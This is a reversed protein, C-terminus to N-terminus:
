TDLLNISRLNTNFLPCCPEVVTKWQMYSPLFSEVGFYFIPFFFVGLDGLLKIYWRRNFDVNHVTDEVWQPHRQLTHVQALWPSLSCWIVTHCMVLAQLFFFIFNTACSSFNLQIPPWSSNGSVRYGRLTVLM